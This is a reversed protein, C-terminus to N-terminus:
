IWQLKERVHKLADDIEEESWKERKKDYRKVLYKNADKWEMGSRSAWSNVLSTLERRKSAIRDQRPVYVPEAAAHGDSLGSRQAMLIEAIIKDDHGTRAALISAQHSIDTEFEEGRAIMGGYEVKGNSYQFKRYGCTGEIPPRCGITNPDGRTGLVKEQWDEIARAFGHLKPHNVIYCYSWAEYKDEPNRRRMIRGVSQRFSLETKKTTLLVLVALRPIDTGESIKNVAVIWRRNSHRFDEVTTTSTDQDSILIDPKYGTIEELHKAIFRAHAQDAAIVLGGADAVFLRKWELKLNAETLMQCVTDEDWIAERLIQDADDDTLKEDKTSLRKEQLAAGEILIHKTIEFEHYHFAVSRIHGDEIATPYDYNFGPRYASRDENLPLYPILEGNSTRFPTGTIALRRKAKEFAERYREGWAQPQEDEGRDALHHVEDAIIMLDCRGSLWRLHHATASTLGQYTLVLGDYEGRGYETLDDALDIDFSEGAVLKWAAQVNITPVLVVLQRGPIQLFKEACFLSGVTKGGAPVVAALYDTDECAVWGDLFECQWGRPHKPDKPARARGSMNRNGKKLNETRTLAQSNALDTVGGKSWPIIHDAHWDQGLPEGSLESKGDAAVYLVTREAKSLRRRM